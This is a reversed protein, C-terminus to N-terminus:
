FVAWALGVFLPGLQQSHNPLMKPHKGGERDGERSDEFQVRHKGRCSRTKTKLFLVGDLAHM